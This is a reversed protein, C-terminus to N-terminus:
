FCNKPFWVHLSQNTSPLDPSLTAHQFVRGRENDVFFVDLELPQVIASLVHLVPLQMELMPTPFPIPFFDLTVM